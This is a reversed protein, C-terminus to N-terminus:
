YEESLCNKFTFEELNSKTCTRDTLWLDNVWGGQKLKYWLGGPGESVRKEDIVSVQDGHNAQNRVGGRNPDPANWINIGTKFILQGYEGSDQCRDYGCFYMAKGTSSSYTTTDKRNASRSIVSVAIIGIIILILVIIKRPKM